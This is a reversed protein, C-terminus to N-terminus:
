WQEKFEKGENREGWKKRRIDKGENRREKIEGKRAEENDERLKRKGRIDCRM